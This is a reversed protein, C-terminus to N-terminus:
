QMKIGFVVGAEVNFTSVYMNFSVINSTAVIAGTRINRVVLQAGFRLWFKGSGARNVTKLQRRSGRSLIFVGNEERVFRRVFSEARGLVYERRTPSISSINIRGRADNPIVWGKRAPRWLPQGTSVRRPSNRRRTKKIRRMLQVYVECDAPLAFPTDLALVIDKGARTGQELLRIQPASAVSGNINPPTSGGPNPIGPLNGIVSENRRTLNLLGKQDDSFRYQFSYASPLDAKDYQAQSDTVIIPRIKGAHYVYKQKAPFFDLLWQREYEDLHGTNQNFTRVTDVAYESSIGGINAVKHNHEADLSVGGYARFTDLGGLSNEWMFWKEHESKPESFVYTQKDTLPIGDLGEIWVEYHTPHRQGLQKVVAAYQLNGTYAGFPLLRGLSLLQTTGDHFYARLQLRSTLVSYYTLWEPSDYTVLKISPQWTLFNRLFWNIPTVDLNAVGTRVVRFNINRSGNVLGSFQGVLNEQRYFSEHSIHYSLQSEVLEQVDISIRGASNPTYSADLLHRIPGGIALAFSIPSDSSIIFKELNGSLSLSLPHQIITAM